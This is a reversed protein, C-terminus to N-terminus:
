CPLRDSRLAHSSDHGDEFQRPVDSTGTLAPPDIQNM